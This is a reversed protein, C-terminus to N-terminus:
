EMFSFINLLVYNALKAQYAVQIGKILIWTGIFTPVFGKFLNKLVDKTAIL